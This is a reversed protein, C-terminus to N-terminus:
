QFVSRVDDRLLVVISWIGSPIGLFCCLCGGPMISVSGFMSLWYNRLHLMNYAAWITVGSSMAFVLCMIIAAIASSKRHAAKQLTEDTKNDRGEKAVNEAAIKEEEWQKQSSRALPTVFDDVYGFGVMFLNFFLGLCGLGLMTAAPPRVLQRAREYAAQDLQVMDGGPATPVALLEPPAAPPRVVQPPGPLQVVQGCHPCKVKKGELETNARVKKGCGGCAFVLTTARVAPPLAVQVSSPRAASKPKKGAFYAFIPAVATILGAVAGIIALIEKLTDM